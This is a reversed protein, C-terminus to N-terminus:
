RKATANRHELFRQKCAIGIKRIEAFEPTKRIPDFLPDRDMAPYGCFNQEVGKRLIQLASERDGCLAVMGSIAYKPESDPIRLVEERVGAPLPSGASPPRRALCDRFWDGVPRGRPAVNALAEEYRGQRLLMTQTIRRVLESGADLDLFAKAREYNGLDIYTQACSRWRYSKPDRSLA